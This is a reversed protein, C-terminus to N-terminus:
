SYGHTMVVCTISYPKELKNQNHFVM